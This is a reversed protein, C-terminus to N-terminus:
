EIPLPIIRVESDQVKSLGLNFVHIFLYFLSRYQHLDYFYPSYSCLVIGIEPAFPSVKKYEVNFRASSTLSTWSLALM